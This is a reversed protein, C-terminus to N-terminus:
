RGPPLATLACMLRAVGRGHTLWKDVAVQLRYAYSAGLGEPLVIANGSSVNRM